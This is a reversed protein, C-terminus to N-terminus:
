TPKVWAQFVASLNLKQKFSHHTINFKDHNMHSILFKYDTHSYKNLAVYVIFM